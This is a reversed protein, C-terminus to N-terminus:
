YEWWCKNNRIKITAAMAGLQPHVSLPICHALHPPWRYSWHDLPQPLLIIFKFIVQTAYFPNPSMTWSYFGQRSDGESSIPRHSLPLPGQGSYLLGRGLGLHLFSGNPGTGTKHDGVTPEANWIGLGAQIFPEGQLAVTGLYNRESLLSCLEKPLGLEFGYCLWWGIQSAIPEAPNSLTSYSTWHLPFLLQGLGVSGLETGRLRPLSTRWSTVSLFFSTSADSRPLSFGLTNTKHKGM